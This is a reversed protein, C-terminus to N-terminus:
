IDINETLIQYTKEGIGPLQLLDDWNKVNREKIYEFVKKAINTKIGLNILIQLDNIDTIKLKKNKTFPIFVRENNKLLQSKNIKQLDAGIKLISERILDFYNAGDKLTYEGPYEVAGEIFVTIYNSKFSSKNHHWKDIIETKVVVGSILVVSSIIFFSATLIFKKKNIKLKM